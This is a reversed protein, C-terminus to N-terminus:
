WGGDFSGVDFSGTDTSGIDVSVDDMAIDTDLELEADSSYSESLTEMDERLQRNLIFAALTNNTNRARALASTQNQAGRVKSRGKTEQRTRQEEREQALANAYNQEEQEKALAIARQAAAREESRRQAEERARREAEERAQQEARLTTERQALYDRLTMWQDRHFIEHQLGIQNSALKAEIAAAPYPGFRLSRWRLLFKADREATFTARPTSTINSM